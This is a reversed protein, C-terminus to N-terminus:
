LVPPVSSFRPLLLRSRQTPIQALHRRSGLSLINGRGHEPVFPERPVWSLPSEHRAVAEWDVGAFYKHAKMQAMTTRTSPDKNLLGAVLDKATYKPLPTQAIAAMKFMLLGLAWMDAEFAYPTGAHQAPSMWHLTGCREQTSRSVDGPKLFSGSSEVAVVLEAMFMKVRDRGLQQSNVTLSSLDKGGCWAGPSSITSTLWM